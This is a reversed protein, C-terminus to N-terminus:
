AYEPLLKDELPSSDSSVTCWLLIHTAPTLDAGIIVSLKPFFFLCNFKLSHQKEQVWKRCLKIWRAAGDKCVPIACFFLSLLGSFLQHQCSVHRIRPSLLSTGSREGLHRVDQGGGRERRQPDQHLRRQRPGEPVRLLHLQGDWDRQSWRQWLRISLYTYIVPSAIFIRFRLIKLGNLWRRTIGSVM